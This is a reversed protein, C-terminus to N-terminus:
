LERFVLSVQEVCLSLSLKLYILNGICCELSQSKQNSNFYDLYFSPEVQKKKKMKYSKENSLKELRKKFLKAKSLLIHLVNFPEFGLCSKYFFVGM